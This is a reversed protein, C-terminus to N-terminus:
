PRSDNDIHENEEKDKRAIVEHISEIRKPRRKLGLTSLCRELATALQTRQMVVPMITKRRKIVVGDPLNMIYNDTFDLYLRYRVALEVLCSEQASLNEEGGLDTLLQARWETIAMPVRPKRGKAIALGFLPRTKWQRPKPQPKKKDVQDNENIM